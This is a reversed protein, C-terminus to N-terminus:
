IKKPENENGEQAYISKHLNKCTKAHKQLCAFAFTKTGVRFIQREWQSPRELARRVRM